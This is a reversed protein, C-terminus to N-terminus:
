IFGKISYGGCNPDPDTSVFKPQPSSIILRSLDLPSKGEVCYALLLSRAAALTMPKRAQFGLKRIEEPARDDARYLKIM